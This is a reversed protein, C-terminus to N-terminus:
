PAGTKAAHAALLQQITQLSVPKVLHLDFGAEAALQRDNDQGYGTVAAILQGTLGAARLAQCVQYGNRGPLGIDLFVIDPRERLAVDIAEQGHHALLTRNGLIELIKSLSRAADVNDDVVLVKLGSVSTAHPGDPPTAAPAADPACPLRVVFESGQGRGASHAEVTGGHMQVLSRVLALGVGLGGEARDLNADAQYFLQFLNAIADASLGRGNDRVSLVAHAPEAPERDIAVEIRGGEDTYKAANNVLNAVIQALRIADGEV